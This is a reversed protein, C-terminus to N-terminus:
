LLRLFSTLVSFYSITCTWPLLWKLINSRKAAYRYSTEPTNISLYDMRVGNLDMATLYNFIVNTIGNKTTPVTNILLIKM